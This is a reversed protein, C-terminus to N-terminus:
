LSEAGAVWAGGIEPQHKERPRHADAVQDPPSRANRQLLSEVDRPVNKRLPSPILTENRQLEFISWARTMLYRRSANCSGSWSM